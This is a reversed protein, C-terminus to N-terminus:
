RQDTVGFYNDIYRAAVIIAGLESRRKAVGHEGDGKIAGMKVLKETEKRWYDPGDDLEAYFPDDIDRAARYQEIFDDSEAPKVSEAAKYEVGYYDCIGACIAEGVVTPNEILWKAIKPVDHFDVEIYVSAANPVRLEYLEPYTSISESTGPTVPALRAFIAQCPAKGPSEKSYYFMRTGSVSGNYANTHIPIHLDAGWNNSEAVRQEMTDTQNNIVDFGCRKLAKECADAIRRCQIMENTDGYAYVNRNQDSPSLYIKM